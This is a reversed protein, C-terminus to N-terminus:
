ASRRFYTLLSESDDSRLFLLMTRGEGELRFSGGYAAQWDGLARAAAKIQDHRTSLWVVDQGADYAARTRRAVVQPRLRSTLNIVLPDSVGM